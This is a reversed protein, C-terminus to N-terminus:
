RDRWGLFDRDEGKELEALVEEYHRVVLDLGDSIAEKGTVICVFHKKIRKINPGYVNAMTVQVGQKKLLGAVGQAKKPDAHGEEEDLDNTMRGVAEYGSEFIEFIEYFDADGFHRKMFHEGDNTAVALRMKEM